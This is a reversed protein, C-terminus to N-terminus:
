LLGASEKNIAEILEHKNEMISEGQINVRYRIPSLFGQIGLHKCQMHLKSLAVHPDFAMHPDSDLTKLYGTFGLFAIRYIMQQTFAGQFYGGHVDRKQRLGDLMLLLYDWWGLAKKRKARTLLGRPEGGSQGQLSFTVDKYDTCDFYTFFDAITIKPQKLVEPSNAPQSQSVELRKKLLKALTNYGDSRCWTYTLFLYEMIKYPNRAISKALSSGHFFYEDLASLNIIGYDKSDEYTAKLSVNGLRYGMAESSSPFTFYNATASAIRLALDGESSFLYSESFRRLSSSLFNARSSVITLIPIDPSTLILRELRFVSGVDAPPQNNVSRYDFVDSLIRVVNTVVFGGMSHGLFSLKIKRQTQEWFKAAKEDPDPEDPTHQRIDEAKLRVMARDVQRLLEVLDLVGFNQARYRDRFYVVIRLLVLTFIITSLGLLVALTLALVFGALTEGFATLELILLGLAGVFGTVMLDRPLPPLAWFAEGLRQFEINESPWRYGIFVQNGQCPIPQDYRNVYQFINKYWDRVSSRGSNYGHVAIMLEPDPGQENQTYTTYLHRAIQMVGQAAEQVEPENMEEANEINPSASSMVFYGPIQTQHTSPAGPKILRVQAAEQGADIDQDLFPMDGPSLTDRFVFKRLIVPLAKTEM